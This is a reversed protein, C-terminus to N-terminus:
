SRGHRSDRDPAPREGESATGDPGDAGRMLGSRWAWAVAEARTKVGIRAYLASLHNRLTGPALHTAAAIAANPEGVAVRRLLARHRPTLGAAEGADPPGPLLRAAVRPSIWVGGDAVVRVAEFLAEVEDRKSVFGAVGAELLALVARRLGEADHEEALAVVRAAEPAPGPSAGDHLLHVDALLVDPGLHAALHLADARSAAQGAVEVEPHADLLRALGERLLPAQEAVVVRVPPPVPPSRDSM